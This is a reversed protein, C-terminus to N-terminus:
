NHRGVQVARLVTLNNGVPTFSNAEMAAVLAALPEDTLDALDTNPLLDIADWDPGPVSVHYVEGTVDDAYFIRLASERQALVDTPTAPNKTDVTQNFVERAQICETAALLAAGLAAVSTMVTDFNAGGAAVDAVTLELTSIEDSKDRYSWSAKAM